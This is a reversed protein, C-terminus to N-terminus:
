DASSLQEYLLNALGFSANEAMKKAYDDYLMDEFIEEAFGGDLFGSKDVTKRMVNLMQKIFISEFEVSAKYLDSDRDIRKIKDITNDNIRSSLKSAWLQQSAIDM